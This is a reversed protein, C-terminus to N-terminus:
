HLRSVSADARCWCAGQKYAEVAAVGNGVITFRLALRTLIKRMVAQSLADDEAVLINAVRAPPMEGLSSLAAATTPALQLPPPVFSAGVAAPAPPMAARRSASGQESDGSASDEDGAVCTATADLSSADDPPVAAAATVHVVCSGDESSRSSGLPPTCLPIIFTLTVGKGLGESAALLDGGM